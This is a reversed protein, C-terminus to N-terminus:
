TIVKKPGQFRIRGSSSFTPAPYARTSAGHPFTDRLLVDRLRMNTNEAFGGPQREVANLHAKSLLLVFYVRRRLPRVRRALTRAGEPFETRLVM